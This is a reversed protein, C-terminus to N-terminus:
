HNFCECNVNLVVCMLFTQSTENFILVWCTETVPTSYEYDSEVCVPVDYTYFYLCCVAVYQFVVICACQYTTNACTCNISGQHHNSFQSRFM